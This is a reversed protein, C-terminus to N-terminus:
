QLSLSTLNEPTYQIGITEITTEPQIDLANLVKETLEPTAFAQEGQHIIGQLVTQVAGVHHGTFGMWIPGLKLVAGPAKATVENRQTNQDKVKLLQLLLQGFAVPSTAEERQCVAQSFNDAPKFTYITGFRPALTPSLRM